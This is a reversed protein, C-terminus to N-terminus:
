ARAEFLLLVRGNGLQEREIMEFLPATAALLDSEQLAGYLNTRGRMLSQYMPDAPPVWEILLYRRTLRQCLEVIKAIPIQEMLILHHIVALLLVLDFRGELRAILSSTEANEWGCAPTPRAFDAHITQIKKLHEPGSISMRYIREASAADRELAVVEAGSEAALASFEGTNAGVDLVSAPRLRGLMAEVWRRKAASQEPTYHTLAGRYQSWESKTLARVTNRTRKRLGEITGRLVETAVEPALPRTSPNAAAADAGKRRELLAPLTIPWLALRSLRKPWTMAEFLEAPEYGDRRFMTLTLPWGLVRDMVLPLLFTRVYQGYALWISAKPDRQEFSLIDVLVPRSGVYLVNLPTADKLIWGEALGEACLTLTLEAAGLWQSWTWEWPYSPTAIRPHILSLGAPDDAIEAAILDGRQQMRACFPSRLFGLVEERAAPHITRVM